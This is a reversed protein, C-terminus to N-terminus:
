RFRLPRHKTATETSILDERRTDLSPGATEPADAWDNAIGDVPGAEIRRQFCISIRESEELVRAISARQEMTDFLPCIQATSSPRWAIPMSYPRRAACAAALSFADGAAMHSGGIRSRALSSTALM